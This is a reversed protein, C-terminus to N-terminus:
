AGYDKARFVTGPKPVQLYHKCIYSKGKGSLCKERSYWIKSRIYCAIGRGKRNRSNQRISYRDM